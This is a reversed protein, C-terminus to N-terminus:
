ALQLVGRVVPEFPACLTARDASPLFERALLALAAEEAAAHAAAFARRDTRAWRTASGAVYFASTEIADRVYWAAVALGRDNLTAELIAYSTSRKAIDSNAAMACRGTDLWASLPLEALRDAFQNVAALAPEDQPTLDAVASPLRLRGVRARRPTSGNGGARLLAQGNGAKVTADTGGVAPANRRRTIRAVFAGVTGTAFITTVRGISTPLFLM